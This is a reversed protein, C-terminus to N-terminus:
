TTVGFSQGQVRITLPAPLPRKKRLYLVYVVHLALTTPLFLHQEQLCVGTHAEQMWVGEGRCSARETLTDWSFGQCKAM